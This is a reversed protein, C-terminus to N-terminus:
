WNEEILVQTSKSAKKETVAIKDIGLPRIGLKVFRQQGNRNQCLVKCACFFVLVLLRYWTIASRSISATPVSRNGVSSMNKVFLRFVSDSNQSEEVRNQNCKECFVPITVVTTVKVETTLTVVTTLLLKQPWSKSWLLLMSWLLLYQGCFYCKEHITAGFNSWLLLM